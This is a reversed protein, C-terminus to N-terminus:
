VLGPKGLVSQALNRHFPHNDTLSLIFAVSESTIQTFIPHSKPSQYLYTCLNTASLIVNMNLSYPVAPWSKRESFVMQWTDDASGIVPNGLQCQIQHKEVLLAHRSLIYKFNFYLVPELFPPLLCKL